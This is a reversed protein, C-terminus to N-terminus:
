DPNSIFRDEYNSHKIALVLVPLAMFIVGFLIFALTAEKRLMYSGYEAYGV